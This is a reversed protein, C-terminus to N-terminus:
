HKIYGPLAYADPHKCLVMAQEICSPSFIVQEPSLAVRSRFHNAWHFEAFPTWVKEFGGRKRVIAALSRYPDNKLQKVTRPLFRPLDKIDVAKGLENHCWVYHHSEMEEWFGSEPLHSWDAVINIVVKEQGVDIAACCLHHHDIIYLANYPGQVVPVPHDEIYEKLEKHSKRLLKNSKEYVQQMGVALQTPHLELIPTKM